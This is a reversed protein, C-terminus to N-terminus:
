VLKLMVRYFSMERDPDHGTCIVPEDMKIDCSHYTGDFRWVESIIGARYWLKPWESYYADHKDIGMLRVHDGNKMKTM